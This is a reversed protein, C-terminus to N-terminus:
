DWSEEEVCENNCNTKEKNSSEDPDEENSIKNLDKEEENSIKNLNDEEENSNKDPDREDENSIEDRYEEESDTAYVYNRREHPSYIYYYYDGPRPLLPGRRGFFEWGDEAVIVCDDVIDYKEQALVYRLDDASRYEENIAELVKDFPIKYPISFKDKVYYKRYVKMDKMFRDADDRIKEHITRRDVYYPYDVSHIEKYATEPNPEVYIDELESVLPLGQIDKRIFLAIQSVPGYDPMGEPSDGVGFIAVRYNPYRECINLAWDKFQEQSWEFKHDPHRFGNKLSKFLVNYDSNPTSFMAIKPQIFGFINYPVNELVDPNLHEITEIALVVDAYKTYESPTDISGKLVEIYLPITRCKVYCAHLPNVRDKYKNLIEEDIDVQVIHQIHPVNRFRDILYMEACGFEVIKNFQGEFNVHELVRIVNSYRQEYIPPRFKIEGDDGYSATRFSCKLNDFEIM